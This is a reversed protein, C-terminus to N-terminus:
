EIGLVEGTAWDFTLTQGSKIEGAALPRGDPWHLDVASYDREAWYLRTPWGGLRGYERRRARKGPGRHKHRVRKM